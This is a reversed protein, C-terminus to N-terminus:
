QLFSTDFGADDGRFIQFQDSQPSLSNLGIVQTCPRLSQLFIAYQEPWRWVPLYKTPHLPRYLHRHSSYRRAPFFYAEGWRDQCIRHVGDFINRSDKLRSSFAAFPKERVPLCSGTKRFKYWKKTVKRTRYGPVTYSNTCDQSTHETSM